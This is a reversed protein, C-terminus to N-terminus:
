EYRQRWTGTSLFQAVHGVAAALTMAGLAGVGGIVLIPAVLSAVTVGVILAAIVAAAALAVVLWQVM